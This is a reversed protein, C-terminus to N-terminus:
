SASVPAQLTSIQTQIKQMDAKLQESRQQFKDIAEKPARSTFGTDSLKGSVNDLEKQLKTLQLELRKKEAGVDILGELPLYLEGLPTFASAAGKLSTEAFDLPEANLLSKLSEAESPNKSWDGKPILLFRTKRSTPINYSARLNRAATVTAHKQDIYVSVEATLGLREIEQKNFAAPWQAFQISEEPSGTKGLSLSSWLEETIFPLFPHLLKLTNSLVHDFVCLTVAKAKEHNGYLVSKISEVYWDCFYSWFFEYLRNTIQQFEYVNYARNIEEIAQNLQILVAKDDASLDSAKLENFHITQTSKQSLRFRTANWLKNCFNRGLEVNQEDFRIDLGLPACRMIGFRLGDAGYKSILDLPDPSNGWQKSMKRGTKDRVTGHLYVNSFCLKGTFEFGAMIMRAVWFFLIEPATVLDNTPYFKSFESDKDAAAKQFDDPDRIMTAFTWLWSSFWTDLVDPDQQWGDGKPAEMGVHTETKGNQSRTWVPIRHGWWLQRSICWDRINTMWNEFVKGHHEPWFVLKKAQAAEISEKTGPYKLFWQDSILPEAPVEARESYGVNHTYDEIKDIFGLDQLETVVKERCEYRDLGAFKEGAKSTMKGNFGIVQIQELNHRVGMEFDAPDHAPTVKVCGTGFKPDVVDDGIIKIRRGVLPLILEKGILKQYREDKPNVAVATDGLMTEPRTTAVILFQDPQDAVPYKIYWLHGRTEKMIVEEDSLATNSVVCWNVMRRGRYILGKEYLKVFVYSVWKSYNIRVEPNRADLGDMTFVTRSWDCSCGLKKLQQLIIGGHKDKWEWVQKLFEDRGLDHRTKKQEKRLKQEVKTQTAIGAHDIGPLWLVEHGQMRKRRCIIDQITNNLVHGMHLIGTVNPPPIVISFAEKLGKARLASKEAESLGHGNFAKKPDATFSGNALWRAYIKDEVLSPDYGKALETM